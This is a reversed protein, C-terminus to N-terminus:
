PTETRMLAELFYYDGFILSEDCQNAGSVSDPHTQCGRMLLGPSISDGGADEALYGGGADATCLSTLMSRAADAYRTRDAPDTSLTSLELLGSAAIAAASSDRSADPIGPADFDWYPVFDAPLNGIFFDAARQATELFVPDGTERCTMTFGYVAWAQGRAWTSDDAYGQWTSREVVEGTAPDFDVLHFVSGDGRVHNEMTTLAHSVAMDYWAADGGNKSAWFLIELNMMNDIIVPFRWSGWSWSRLAGVTPNFRTALSGAATIVVDRYAADGTLRYGRGFSSFIQFGVDHTTTDNKRGELGATWTEARTWWAAEGTSEYAAWLIGPLFGSTWGSAASTVWSAYSRTRVPYTDPPLTDATVAVKGLLNVCRGACDTLGEPCGGPEEEADADPGVDEDAPGDAAPEDAEEVDTGEDTWAVDPDTTSDNRGGGDGPGCSPAVSLLFTLCAWLWGESKRIM